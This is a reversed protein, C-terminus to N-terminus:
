PSVSGFQALYLDRLPLPVPIQEVGLSELLRIAEAIDAPEPERGSVLDIEASTLLLLAGDYDLGTARAEMLPAFAEKAAADLDGKLSLATARVRSIITAYFRAIEDGASARANALVELAKAPENLWTRMEAQVIAAELLKSPMGVASARDVARDLLASAEDYDQQACHARALQVEIFAAGDDFGSAVMVRLAESLLPVADDLRGRNVWVEGANGNAQAATVANGAQDSALAAREYYDLATDWDGSFYAEAGLNIMVLAESALHGLERYIALAQKAHVAREPQGTVHYAWDMAGYARALAERAGSPKAAAVAAHAMALTERPRDQAQRVVAGFALLKATTAAAEPANVDEVLRRGATIERLAISYAGSRERARARKLHLEAGALADDKSVQSARRYADLAGDYRGAQERVDGLHTWVTRLDREPCAELRRAAELAREYQLAAEENAYAERARDGAIRGYQWARAYDRGISFHMALIDAVGEADDGAMDEIVVGARQHLAQRRRFSLGEYAVDRVMAHRFRLRGRGDGVIFDSLASRTASDLVLNAQALIERVVVTRFSRGLVSCYRLVRRSLPALADIETSVMSGLSDPLADTSGTERVIRLIEGLFFPNGGGRSVIAEVDHPRLPTATTAADVLEKAQDPGLPSLELRRGITPDFGTEAGRRTAVLLWPKDTTAAVLRGLLHTSAEDM